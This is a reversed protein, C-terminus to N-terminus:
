STEKVDTAKCKGHKKASPGAGPTEMPASLPLGIEPTLNGIFPNLLMERDSPPLPLSQNIFAMSGQVATIPSPAIAIANFKKKKSPSANSTTTASPPNSSMGLNFLLQSITISLLKNPLISSFHGEVKLWHNILAQKKGNPPYDM